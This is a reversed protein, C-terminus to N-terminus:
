EKLCKVKLFLYPYLCTIFLILVFYQLMEGPISSGLVAKLFVKLVLTGAVGFLFRLIRTKLSSTEAFRIFTREIYWGIAFGFGAAASKCCDEAQIALLTGSNMLVGAYVITALSAAALFLSISSDSFRDTWKHVAFSIVGALIIATIVDKPTHVGLYMRSFGVLLFLIVFLLRNRKRNSNLALTSYLLTASQTHGSPFSYGTAAELASAVPRFSPDLVWPREIRFTIKMNQLLLGSLFFGLGSQYALRKNLCWFLFCIVLLVPIEEGFYTVFQFFLNGAPCRISELLKLFDM